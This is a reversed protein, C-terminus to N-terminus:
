STLLPSVKILLFPPPSNCEDSGQKISLTALNGAPLESGVAATADLEIYFDIRMNFEKPFMCSKTYCEQNRSSRYSQLLLKDLDIQCEMEGAVLTVPLVSDYLIYPYNPLSSYPDNCDFPYLLVAIGFTICSGRRTECSMFAQCRGRVKRVFFNLWYITNVVQDWLYTILSFHTIYATALYNCNDDQHITISSEEALKLKVPAGEKTNDTHWLELKINPYNRKIQSYNPIPMTIMIKDEFQVNHPELMVCASAPSHNSQDDCLTPDEYHVTATIETKSQVSTTPIVMKFGPLEQIMLQAPQSVNPEVTVSATPLSFQTITTFYGFHTTKFVVRDELMKCDHSALKKWEFPNTLSYLPVLEHDPNQQSPEVTKMLEIIAPKTASFAIEQPLICVVPTLKIENAQLKPHLQSEIITEISLEQTFGRSVYVLCSSSQAVCTYDEKSSLEPLM